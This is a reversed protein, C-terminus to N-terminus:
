EGRVPHFGARVWAILHGVALTGLSVLFWWVATRMALQEQKERMREVVVNHYQVLAESKRSAVVEPKLYVVHGNPMQVGERSESELEAIQARAAPTLSDYLALSHQVSKEDPWILALGIACVAFAVATATVWLRHWGSLRM